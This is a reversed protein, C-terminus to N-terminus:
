LKNARQIKLILSAKPKRDREIDIVFYKVDSTVPITQCEGLCSVSIGIRHSGPANLLTTGTLSELIRGTINVSEPMIPSVPRDVRTREANLFRYDIIEIHEKGKNVVTLYVTSVEVTIFGEITQPYRMVIDTKVTPDSEIRFDFKIPQRDAQTKASISEALKNDRDTIIARQEEHLLKPAKVLSVLMTVALECLFWGIGSFLAILALRGLSVM